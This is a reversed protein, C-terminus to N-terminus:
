IKWFWIDDVTLQYNSANTIISCMPKLKDCGFDHKKFSWDLLLDILLVMGVPNLGVVWLDGLIAGVYKFTGTYM